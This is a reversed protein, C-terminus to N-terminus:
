GVLELDSLGDEIPGAITSLFARVTSVLYGPQKWAGLITLRYVPYPISVFAVFPVHFFAIKLGRPLFSRQHAVAIGV